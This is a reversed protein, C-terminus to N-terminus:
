NGSGLTGVGSSEQTTTTTSTSDTKNGSGLTGVGGAASSETFGPKGAAGTGTPEGRCGAVTLMIAAAAVLRRNILGM